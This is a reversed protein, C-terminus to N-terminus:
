SFGNSSFWRHIWEVAAPRSPVPVAVPDLTAALPVLPVMRARTVSRIWGSATNMSWPKPVSTGTFFREQPM